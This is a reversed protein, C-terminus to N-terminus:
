PHCNPVDEKERGALLYLLHLGALGGHDHLFFHSRLYRRLPLHFPVFKTTSVLLLLKTHRSEDSLWLFKWLIVAGQKSIM